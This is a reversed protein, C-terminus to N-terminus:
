LPKAKAYRTSPSILTDEELLKTPFRACAKSKTEMWWLYTVDPIGRNRAGTNSSPKAFPNMKRFALFMKPHKKHWERAFVKARRIGRSLHFGDGLTRWNANSLGFPYNNNIQSNM